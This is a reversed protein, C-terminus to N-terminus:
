HRSRCICQWHSISLFGSYNKSLQVEVKPFVRNCRIVQGNGIQVGFPTIQQIPLCMQHVMDESIFNHTSGSDILILITRSGIEGKIKMTTGMTKGLIAHLSIEAMESAETEVAGARANELADEGQKDDEVLEM